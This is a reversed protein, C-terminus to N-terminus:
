AFIWKNSKLKPTMTSSIQSVNQSRLVGRIKTNHINGQFSAYCTFPELLPYFFPSLAEQPTRGGAPPRTISGSGAKQSSGRGRGGPRRPRVARAGPLDDLSFAITDKSPSRNFLAVATGTSIAGAWVELSSGSSLELCFEGGKKVTGANDDDIIGNQDTAKILTLADPNLNFTADGSAM